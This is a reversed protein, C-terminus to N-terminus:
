APKFGAQNTIAAIPGKPDLDYITRKDRKVSEEFYGPIYVKIDHFIFYGVDSPYVKRCYHRILAPTGEISDCGIQKAQDVQFMLENITSAPKYNEVFDSLLRYDLKEPKPEPHAPEIDPLPEEKAMRELEYDLARDEATYDTVPQTLVETPTVGNINFDPNGKEELEDPKPKNKAGKPRGM